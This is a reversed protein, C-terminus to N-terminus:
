DPRNADLEDMYTLLRDAPDTLHGIRIASKLRLALDEMDFPKSGLVGRNTVEGHGPYVLRGFRAISSLTSSQSQM